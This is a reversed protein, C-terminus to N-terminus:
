FILFGKGIMKNVKYNCKFYMDQIFLNLKSQILFINMKFFWFTKNKHMRSFGLLKGLM